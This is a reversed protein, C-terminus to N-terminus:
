TLLVDSWHLVGGQGGFPVYALPVMDHGRFGDPDYSLIDTYSDFVLVPQNGLAYVGIQLDVPAMGHVDDIGIKDEGPNFDIIADYNPSPDTYLFTDGGFGGLLTDSGAAGFIVDNGAGGHIFNRGATGNLINNTPAGFGTQSAQSTPDFNSPAGLDTIANNRLTSWVVGSQNVSGTGFNFNEILTNYITTGGAADDSWIGFTAGTSNYGNLTSTSILNGTGGDETFGVAYAEHLSHLGWIHAQYVVNNSGHVTIGGVTARLADNGINAVDNYSLRMNDGDVFIGGLRSNFVDFNIIQSGNLGTGRAGYDFQGVATLDRVVADQGNFDFGIGGTGTLLTHNGAIWIRGFTAEIGSAIQLREHNQTASFEYAGIEPRWQLESAEIINNGNDM